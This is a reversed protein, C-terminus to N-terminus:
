QQVLNNWNTWPNCHTSIGNLGIVSAHPVSCHFNYDHQMKKKYNASSYNFYISFDEMIPNSRRYMLFSMNTVPNKKIFCIPGCKVQCCLLMSTLILSPLLPTAVPPPPPTWVGWSRDLVLKTIRGIGILFHKTQPPHPPPHPLLTLNLLLSWLAWTVM